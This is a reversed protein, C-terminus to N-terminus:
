TTALIVRVSGGQCVWFWVRTPRYSGSKPEYVEILARENTRNSTFFLATVMATGLVALVALLSLLVLRLGISLKAQM